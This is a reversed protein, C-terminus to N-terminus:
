LGYRLTVAQHLNTVTAVEPSGGFEGDLTWPLPTQCTITLTSTCLTLISADGQPLPEQLLARLLAQIHAPNNPKRILVVEFKGDDLQPAQPTKTKFGGVSITNCVMGYIFDGEITGNDHVITLTYCPVASLRLAGELVYALHGFTSKIPQPTTYSVDTFLGFAAVYLFNKDNFQGMDVAKPTGCIAVQALEKATRPLNLNKAFDNTTGAPIYGVIPREEKPLALLGAVVEHLTGDGGSCVIAHYQHGDTAVVQTADNSNRTPHVTLIGQRSLVEQIPALWQAVRGKGAHTNYIFLIKKM